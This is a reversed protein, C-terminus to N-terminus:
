MNHPLPLVLLEIKSISSEMIEVWLLPAELTPIRPPHMFLFHLPSTLLQVETLLFMRPPCRWGELTSVTGM